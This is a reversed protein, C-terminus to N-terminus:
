EGDTEILLVVALPPLDLVLSAAFGHSPEADARFLAPLAM